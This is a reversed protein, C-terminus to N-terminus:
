KDFIAVGVLLLAEKTGSYYPIFSLLFQRRPAMQFGYTGQLGFALHEGALHKATFAAEAVHPGMSCLEGMPLILLHDSLALM